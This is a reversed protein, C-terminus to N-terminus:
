SVRHRGGVGIGDDGNGAGRPAPRHPDYPDTPVMKSGQRLGPQPLRQLRAVRGVQRKRICGTLGYVVAQRQIEGCGMGKGTFVHQFELSMAPRHNQLAQQGTAQFDRSGTTGM